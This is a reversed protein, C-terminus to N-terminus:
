YDIAIVNELYFVIDPIYKNLVKLAIYNVYEVLVRLQIRIQTIAIGM